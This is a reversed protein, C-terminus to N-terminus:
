YGPNQANTMAPCNKIQVDPIPYLDDTATWNPKMTSLGPTNGTRKLDLWRHGWEMFYEVRREHLIAQNLEDFDSSTLPSLGARIRIQNIDDRAGSFDDLNLRAEARILYQEALRLITSSEGGIAKYKFSTNQLIWNNKRQDNEEFANLLDSRLYCRYQGVFNDLPVGFRPLIQLISERNNTLFVNNVAVLEFNAVDNIVNQANEEALSWEGLFLYVRALLASAASTIPRIRQGGYPDFATPLTTQAFQLDSVIQEYVESSKTRGINQNLTYDTSLILPVDGFLNVLYFYAFARMFKVEGLLNAKVLESVGSAHELGEVAANCKYIMSYFDSWMASIQYLDVTLNNDNFLQYDPSSTILNIADDSSLACLFSISNQDGSGVGALHLQYFIESVAANAKKDSTFVNERILDTRPPDIQVFDTCASILLIIIMIGIPTTTTNRM